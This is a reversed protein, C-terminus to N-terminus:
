RKTFKDIIEEETVNNQERSKMNKLKLGDHDNLIVYEAFTRDAMKFAGGLGKSYSALSVKLGLGRLKEALKLIRGDKSLDIIFIDTSKSNLLKNKQEESLCLILREVGLSFGIGEFDPGGIEKM